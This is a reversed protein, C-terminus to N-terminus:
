PCKASNFDVVWSGNWALLKIQKEECAYKRKLYNNKDKLIVPAGLRLPTLETHKLQVVVSGIAETEVSECNYEILCSLPSKCNVNCKEMKLM